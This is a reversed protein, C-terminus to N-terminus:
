SVVSVRLDHGGDPRRMEYYFFDAEPTSTVDFYRLAGSGEPTTRWPKSSTARRFTQLDYSIAVGVQEEYNESVDASGDYLALWVGDRRLLCGIRSCYRDWGDSSPGFVEGRWTWRRGDDSTALGTASRVRGTNYADLTGHLQEADSEGVATAFSVLMHHLGGVQFVYPDKVGEVGIDAATLLPQTESLEFAAPDSSEVRDIRWRGDAPDVYSVYLLWRGDALQQLACREISSSNLQDKVGTWITEFHIGDDGKAIHLEAGRDPQVGRPRRVRYVLYHGDRNTFVTAAGVWYGEGEGPPERIVLGSSPDFAPLSAWNRSDM